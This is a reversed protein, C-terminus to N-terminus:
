AMGFSGLKKRNRQEEERTRPCEGEHLTWLVPIWLETNKASDTGGWLVTVAPSHGLVGLRQTKEQSIPIVKSGAGLHYHVHRAFQLLSCSPPKGNGQASHRPGESCPRASPSQTICASPSQAWISVPPPSPTSPHHPTLDGSGSPSPFTRRFPWPSHHHARKWKEGWCRM